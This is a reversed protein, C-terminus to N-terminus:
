KEKNILQNKFDEWGHLFSLTLDPREPDYNNVKKVKLSEVKEVKQQLYHEAYEVMMESFLMIETANFKFKSINSVKENYKEITDNLKNRAHEKDTM